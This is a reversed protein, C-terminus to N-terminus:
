TKLPGERRADSTYGLATKQIEKGASGGVLGGTGLPLSRM